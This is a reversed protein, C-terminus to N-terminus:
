KLHKKKGKQILFYKIILKEIKLLMNFVDYPDCMCFKFNESLCKSEANLTTFLLTYYGKIDKM